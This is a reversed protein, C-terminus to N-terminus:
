GPVTMPMRPSLTQSLSLSLSLSARLMSLLVRRRALWGRRGVRRERLEHESERGRQGGGLASMRNSSSPELYQNGTASAAPHTTIPAAGAAASAGVEALGARRPGPRGRFPAGAEGEGEGEVCRPPPGPALSMTWRRALRDEGPGSSAGAGARAVRALPVAAATGMCLLPGPRGGLVPLALAAAAAEAAAGM